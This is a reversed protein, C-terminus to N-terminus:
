REPLGAKRMGDFFHEADEILKFFRRLRTARRSDRRRPQSHSLADPTRSSHQCQARGKQVAVAGEVANVVSPFEALVGDGATDILRGGYKGIMPLMVAQHAKLGRVTADEDAGMLASYGAIDAALIAALRRSTKPNETGDTPM